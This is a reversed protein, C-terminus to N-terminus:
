SFLSIIALKTEESQQLLPLTPNYTIDVKGWSHYPYFRISDLDQLFNDNFDERSAIIRFVDHLHPEHWLIQFNDSLLRPENGERERWIEKEDWIDHADLTRYVWKHTLILCWFWLQKKAFLEYLKKDTPTM